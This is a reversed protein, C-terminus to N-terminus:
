ALPIYITQAENLICTERNSLTPPTLELLAGDPAPASVPHEAEDKSIPTQRRMAM